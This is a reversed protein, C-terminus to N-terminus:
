EMEGCRGGLGIGLRSCSGHFHGVTIRHTRAEHSDGEFSRVMGAWPSCGPLRVIGVDYRFLDVDHVQSFRDHAHAPCSRWAGATSSLTTIKKICPFAPEATQRFAAKARIM